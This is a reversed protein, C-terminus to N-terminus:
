EENIEADGNLISKKLHNSRFGWQNLATELKIEIGHTQEHVM